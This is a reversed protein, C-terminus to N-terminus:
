CLRAETTSVTIRQTRQCRQTCKLSRPLTLIEASGAEEVPSVVGCNLLPCVHHNALIAYTTRGLSIAQRDMEKRSAQTDHM